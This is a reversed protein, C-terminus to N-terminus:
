SDTDNANEATHIIQEIEPQFVEKLKLLYKIHWERIKDLERENADILGPCSVAIRSFNDEESGRAWELQIEFSEEFKEKQAQLTDFIHLREGRVGEMIHVYTYARKNEVRLMAGYHVKGIGSTFHHYTFHQAKKATTFNHQERLEDILKKFYAKRKQHRPSLDPIRHKQLKYWENPFAVPTFVLAQKSDKSDEITVVEVVVAFFHLDDDTKQNLWDFVRRHIEEVEESIWIIISADVGAAYLLLQGLHKHDAPNLQNEIVVKKESQSDQALLDLSFGDIRVERGLVDLTLGLADGLRDINEELWPTFDQAEHAWTNRLPIKTLKSFDNM